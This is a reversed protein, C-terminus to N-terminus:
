HPFFHDEIAKGEDQRSNYVETYPLRRREDLNWADKKLASTSPQCKQVVVDSQEEDEAERLLTLRESNKETLQAAHFNLLAQIDAEEV